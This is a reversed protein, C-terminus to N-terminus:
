SILKSSGATPWALATKTCRSSQSRRRWFGAPDLRLWQGHKEFAHVYNFSLEGTKSTAWTAGLSLHHQVVGPALINLFTQSEPIPQSAYTYGGRLTWDGMEYAAGLKFM